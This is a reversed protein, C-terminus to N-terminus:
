SVNWRTLGLNYMDSQYLYFVVVQGDITVNVEMPGNTGQGFQDDAGDWGGFMQSDLDFFQALGYSKPYAYFLFKNGPANGGDISINTATRDGNPGRQTLTSKIWEGTKGAVGPSAAAGYYPYIVAAVNNVTINRTATVTIGEQLYSASITVPTNAAVLSATFMGNADITGAAPDSVTWTAQSSVNATTTDNRTVTATMQLTGGENVTTAGSSIALSQAILNKNTSNVTTTRTVGAETYSATISFPTDSAVAAATFLGAASVTGASAPNVTYTAQTTVTSTAGNGYTATAVLQATKSEFVNTGLGTVAISALAANTIVVNKTATLATGNYTYSASLTITQDGTLNGAATVLNTANITAGTGTLTIPATIAMPANTGITLEVAYQATGGEMVTNAGMIALTATQPTGGDGVQKVVEAIIFDYDVVAAPGQPGVPGQLGTPGMPGQPGVPGQPGIPGPVGGGSGNDYWQPDSFIEDYTFIEIWTQTLGPLADPIANPAVAKLKLAKKYYNSQPNQVVWIANIPIGMYSPETIAVVIVYQMATVPHEMQLIVPNYPDLNRIDSLTGMSDIFKQLRLEM